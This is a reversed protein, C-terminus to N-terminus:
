VRRHVQVPVPLFLECIICGIFLLSTEAGIHVTCGCCWLWDILRSYLLTKKLYIVETKYSQTTEIYGCAVLFVWFFFASHTRHSWFVVACISSQRYKIRACIYHSGQFIGFQMQTHYMQAYLFLLCSGRSNRRNRTRCTFNCSICYQTTYIVSIHQACIELSSFNRICLVHWLVLCLTYSTPLLDLACFQLCTSMNRPRWGWCALLAFACLASWVTIKNCKMAIQAHVRNSTGLNYFCRVRSGYNWIPSSRLSSPARCTAICM